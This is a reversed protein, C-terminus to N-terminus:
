MKCKMAEQIMSHLNETRRLFSDLEHQKWNKLPHKQMVHGAKYEVEYLIRQLDLKSNESTIYEGRIQARNKRRYAKVRPTLKRSDVRARAAKVKKRTDLKLREIRKLLGAAIDKARKQYESTVERQVREPDLTGNKEAEFFKDMLADLRAIDKKPWLYVYHKMQKRTKTAKDYYTKVRFTPEGNKNFLYFM